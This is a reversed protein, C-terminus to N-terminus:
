SLDNNLSYCLAVSVADSEDLKKTKFKMGFRKQLYKKVFEKSARANGTIKKKITVPYYEVIKIGYIGGLIIPVTYSQILVRASKFHKHTGLVPAEIAIVEPRYKKIKKNLDIFLISLRKKISKKPLCIVGSDLKSTGKLFAYGFNVLSSDIGLVLSM